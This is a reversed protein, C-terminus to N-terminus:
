GNEVRNSTRLGIIGLGYEHGKNRINERVKKELPGGRRHVAYEM